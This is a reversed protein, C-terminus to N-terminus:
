LLREELERRALERERARGVRLADVLGLLVYLEPDRRSATPACAHLPEVSAGRVDGEPDAWVMPEPDGAFHSALLPLSGATPMGRTVRGPEAPFVYPVGCTLLELLARRNVRKVQPTSGRKKQGPVSVVRSREGQRIARHVTPQSVGLESALETETVDARANVLKLWVILDIRKTPSM